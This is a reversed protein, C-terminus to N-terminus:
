EVKIREILAQQYISTIGYYNLLAPYRNAPHYYDIILREKNGLYTNYYYWNDCINAKLTGDFLYDLDDSTGGCVIIDPDILELEKLLEEKDAEAYSMIERYDSSSKGGSKKINMIAIQKLWENPKGDIRDFSIDSPSYRAIEDVSTKSIGYTWEVVRYWLNTSPGTEKLWNSLSWAASDGYAEKLLFLIHKGFKRNNWTSLDVPGDSIFVNSHDIEVFVEQKKDKDYYSKKEVPKNRWIEFLEELSNCNKIRSDSYDMFM